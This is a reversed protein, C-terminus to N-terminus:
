ALTIVGHDATGHVVSGVLVIAEIATGSSAGDADYAFLTDTGTASATFVNGVYNGQVLSATAGSAGILTTALAGTITAGSSLATLDITDGAHLGTVIDAGVLSTAAATVLAANTAASFTQGVANQVISDVVGAVHTGFTIIDAGAGGTITNGGTGVNIIDAGVGGVITNWGSGATITEATAGASGNITNNGNGVTITDGGFGTIVNNGNGAVITDGGGNGNITSNGNGSTITDAATGGQIYNNGNGAVLTNTHTSNGYLNSDATDSGVLKLGNATSEFANLYVSGTVAHADIVTNPNLALAGTTIEVNGAGSVNVATLATANTLSRIEFGDVATLNLTEVGALTLSTVENNYASVDTVKNGNDFTIGVTDLQGVTSAGAVGITLSGYGENYRDAVTIDSAQVANLGTISGGYGLIESTITSGTLKSVDVSVGDGVNLVEFNLFKAAGTTGVVASSGVYLTDVGAGGDVTKTQVANNYVYVTDSGSGGLYTQAAGVYVNSINGTAAHADIVATSAFGNDTNLDLNAAGTINVATATSANLYVTNAVSGNSAINLTTTNGTYNVSSYEVANLTLNQTNGTTANNVSVDHTANSLIVNTLAKGQLSTNAAHDLTATTLTNSLTSSDVVSNSGEASYNGSITVSTLATNNTAVVTGSTAANDALVVADAANYAAVTTAKDATWAAQATVNAAAAATSLPTIVAAAAAHAADTSTSLKASFAADIAIKQDRTIAGSEYATLTLANNEAVTAASAISSSLTGLATVTALAAFAAKGAADTQNVAANNATQAAALAAQHANLDALSVAGIASTNITTGGKVTIDGTAAVVVAGAVATVAGINVSGANSNVNVTGTSGDIAVNGATTHTVTVDTGGNVAVAGKADVVVAGTVATAAGINVAGFTSNVNVTGVSGDVNVNGATTHTVTVNNGGTISDTSISNAETVNTTAAATVSGGEGATVNLETLGTWGSVNAVVSGNAALVVTEVNKVTVGAPISINSPTSIVLKDNGAGGDISDLVTLTSYGNADLTSTITDNGATGVITDVGATLTFTTGLLSLAPNTSGAAVAIAGEATQVSAATNTVNSIAAKSANYIPDAELGAKSSSVTLPNLNSAAGLTEAFYIGVNAKNTLTDQRVQAAAADAATLAGSALLAAIDVTLAAQVFASAISAKSAGANLLAVWGAVGAADGASGLVNTYLANVYDANGLTGIGATFVEHGTFGAAVQDFTKGGNDILAVWSDLGAQDPARNFIAVYLASVLQTTNVVVAM